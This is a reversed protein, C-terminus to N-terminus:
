RDWTSAPNRIPWGASCSPTWSKEPGNGEHAPLPRRRRDRAPTRGEVTAPRRGRDAPATLAGHLHLVPAQYCGHWAHLGDPRARYPRALPPVGARLAGGLTDAHGVRLDARDGPRALRACSWKSSCTACGSPATGCCSANPCSLGQFGLAYGSRRGQGLPDTFASARMCPAPPRRIVALRVVKPYYAALTWAILGGLGHGIM